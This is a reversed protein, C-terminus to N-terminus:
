EVTEPMPSGKTLAYMAAPIIKCPATVAADSWRPAQGRRAVGHSPPRHIAM